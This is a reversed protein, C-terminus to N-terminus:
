EGRGSVPLLSPARPGRAADEFYVNAIVGETLASTESSLAKPRHKCSASVPSSMTHVVVELATSVPSHTPM